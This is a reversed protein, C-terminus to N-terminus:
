ARVVQPGLAAYRQAERVSLGTDSVLCEFDLIDAFRCFSSVGFKKALGVFVRRRSRQVVLRKVAAVAPDPTTLGHERSIGNSGLFALDIVLDDLMQTAWHDVTAM